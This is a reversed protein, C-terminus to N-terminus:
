ICYFHNKAVLHLNDNEHIYFIHCLFVIKLDATLKKFCLLIFNRTIKKNGVFDISSILVFSIIFFSSKFLFSM